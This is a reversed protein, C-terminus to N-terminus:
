RRYPLMVFIMNNAKPAWAVAVTMDAVARVDVYSAHTDWVDQGASSFVDAYVWLEGEGEAFSKIRGVIGDNFVVVDGVHATGQQYVVETGFVWGQLWATSKLKSTIFHTRYTHSESTADEIMCNLMDRIVTQEFNRFVQTAAHKSVRHKRETVFCALAKGVCSADAALHLLHHSKPKVHDPYLRVYLSHHEVCLQRLEGALQAAKSPGLQLLSLIRTLVNFCTINDLLMNMPRVVQNLFANLLPVMTLHTSAAPTRMDGDSVRREDWWEKKVKGLRRPLTFLSAFEAVRSLDIGSNKLLTLMLALEWSAVGHSVLTHMWDRIGNTAPHLAPRCAVDFLLGNECYTIGMMKQLEEMKQKSGNLNCDILRGAMNWIDADTASDFSAIDACSLDRLYVHDKVPLYRGAVVNKCNLCPKMGGAGKSSFCEKLGKEDALIGRFEAVLVRRVPAADATERCDVHCGTTRFNCAEATFFVKVIKAM